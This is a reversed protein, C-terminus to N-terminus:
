SMREVRYPAPALPHPEFGPRQARECARAPDLMLGIGDRGQGAAPVTPKRRWAAPPAGFEAGSRVTQVALM